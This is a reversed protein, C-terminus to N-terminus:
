SHGFHKQAEALKALSHEDKMVADLGYHRRETPVHDPHCWVHGHTEWNLTPHFQKPVVGLFNHFKLEPKEYTYIPIQTMKGKYGLEEEIERRSAQMPDEGPEIKGGAGCWLNPDVCDSSRYVILVNGTDAAFILAGAAQVQNGDPGAYQVNQEKIAM